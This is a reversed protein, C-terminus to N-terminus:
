QGRSALSTSGFSLEMVIGTRFGVPSTTYFAPESGLQLAPRWPPVSALVVLGVRLRRAIPADVCAGAGLTAWPASAPGAAREGSPRARLAGLEVEVLPGFGIGAYEWRWAFGAALSFLDVDARLDSNGDVKRRAVLYRADLTVRLRRRTLQGGLLPGGSVHPLTHVALQAGFRLAWARDRRSRTEVPAIPPPAESTPAARETPSSEPPASALEDPREASAQVAPSESAESAAEDRLATAILLAAAHQAEACSALLLKRESTRAYRLRLAYSQARKLTLEVEADFSRQPASALLRALERDFGERTCSEPADWRVSAEQQARGVLATAM